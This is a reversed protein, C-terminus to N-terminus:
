AHLDTGNGDHEEEEEIGKWYDSCAKTYAEVAESLEIRDASYIAKSHTVRDAVAALKDAATIRVDPEM